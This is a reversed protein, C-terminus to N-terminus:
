EATVRRVIEHHMRGNSALLGGRVAPGGYVVPSGDFLSVRGGAEEVLVQGACMHGHNEEARLLPEDLTEM